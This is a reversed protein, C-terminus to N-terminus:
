IIHSTPHTQHPALTCRMGPNRVSTRRQIRRDQLKRPVGMGVSHNAAGAVPSSSPAYNATISTPINNSSSTSSSTPAKIQKLPSSMNSSDVYTSSTPDHDVAVMVGGTVKVDLNVDIEDRFFRFDHLETRIKQHRAWNFLFQTPDGSKQYRLFDELRDAEGLQRRLELEDGLLIDM